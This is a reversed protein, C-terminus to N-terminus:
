KELEAVMKKASELAPNLAVAKQYNALAKVKDGLMLYAEALSDFVNASDPFLQANYVFIELADSLKKQRILFYGVDNLLDESDFNFNNYEKLRTQQYFSLIQKGDMKEMEASYVKLFSKKIKAYPLNDMISQISRSIPYLNNQQNNTQLIITLEKDLQSVLLAQYNYASGDHTHNILFDGQMEGKGLGSQNGTSFPMLLEKTSAPSILKFSNVAESFTYFDDVNLNTWGSFPPTLDDYVGTNSFAKAILPEAASPDIIANKIGIPKLIRKRVFDNFSMGSIRAIIQRQLFVNNNNYAYKTGPEFDLAKVNKLYNMNDQDGRMDKWPSNPVGSAYQLLNRIKVKNSWAPLEPLYKSIVDDLSLLNQEKLMMIGIANFEKAISGINFRFKRSLEIKGAADASGFSQRYIRKGSQMVLVNGNFLGLGHAEKMLMDIQDKKSQSFAITPLTTLLLLLILSRCFNSQFLIM